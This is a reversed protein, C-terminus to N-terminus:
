QGALCIRACSPVNTLGPNNSCLVNNSTGVSTGIVQSYIQYDGARLSGTNVTFSIAQSSGLLCDGVALTDTPCLQALIGQGDKRKAWVQYTVGTYTGPHGQVTIAASKEVCANKPANLSMSPPQSPPPNCCTGASPAQACRQKFEPKSCVYGGTNAQICELGTACANAGDAPNCASAGCAKPVPTASPPAPTNTPPEPAPTNSPQGPSPTNTPPAPTNTPTGPGPTNTPTPAGPVQFRAGCAAPATAPDVPQIYGNVQGIAGPLSSATLCRPNAAPGGPRYKNYLDEMSCTPPNSFLCGIDWHAHYGPITKGNSLKINNYCIESGAQVPIVQTNSTSVKTQRQGNPDTYGVEMGTCVPKEAPCSNRTELTAAYMCKHDACQTTCQTNEVGDVLVKYFNLDMQYSGCNTVYDSDRRYEILKEEGVALDVKIDFQGDNIIPDNPEGREGMWCGRNVIQDGEVIDYLRGSNDPGRCFDTNKSYIVSIPREAINKIKIAHVFGHADSREQVEWPIEERSGDEKIIYQAQFTVVASDCMNIEERRGISARTSTTRAEQNLNNYFVLAAVGAVAIFSSILVLLLTRKQLPIMRM